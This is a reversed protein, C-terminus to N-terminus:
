NRAWLKNGGKYRTIKYVLRFQYALKQANIESPVSEPSEEFRSDSLVLRVKDRFELAKTYSDKPYFVWLYYFDDVMSVSGVVRMPGLPQIIVHPEKILNDAQAMPYCKINNSDLIKFLEKYHMNYGVERM